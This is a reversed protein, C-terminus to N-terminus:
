SQSNPSTPETSEQVMVTLTTQAQTIQNISFTPIVYDGLKEKAARTTLSGRLSPDYISKIIIKKLSTEIYPALYEWIRQNQEQWIIQLCDELPRIFISDLDTRIMQIDIKDLQVWIELGIVHLLHAQLPTDM